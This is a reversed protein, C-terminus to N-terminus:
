DDKSAIEALQATVSEVSEGREHALTVVLAAAVQTTTSLLRCLSEVSDDAAEGPELGWTVWEAQIRSAVQEGADAKDGGQPKDLEEDLGFSIAAISAVVTEDVEPRTSSETM